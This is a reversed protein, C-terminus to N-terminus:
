RIHDDGRDFIHDRATLLSSLLAKESPTTPDYRQHPDTPGPFPRDSCGAHIPALRCRQFAGAVYSM